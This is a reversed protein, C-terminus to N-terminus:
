LKCPISSYVRGELINEENEAMTSPKDGDSVELGLGKRLHGVLMLLFDEVKRRKNFASNYLITLRLKGHTTLATMAITPTSIMANLWVDEIPETIYDESIGINSITVFTPYGAERTLSTTIRERMLKCIYQFIQLSDKGCRWGDLEKQSSKAWDIFNANKSVFRNTYATMVAQSLYDEKIQAGEQPQRRVNIPISCALDGVSSESYDLAAQAHAAWIAATLSIGKVRCVKVITTSEAESFQYEIRGQPLLPITEHIETTRAGLSIAKKDLYRDVTLHAKAIGEISLLDENDITRIASPPLRAVEEGIKYVGSSKTRLHKLLTNALFFLGVADCLEHRIHIAMERIEPFFYLASSVPMPTTAATERGSGSRQINVTAEAWKALEYETPVQYQMGKEHVVTCAIGPNEARTSIWAAKVAEASYNSKQPLKLCITLTWQTLNPNMHVNLHILREISDFERYWIKPEALRWGAPAAAILAM